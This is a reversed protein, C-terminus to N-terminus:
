KKRPKRTEGPMETDLGEGDFTDLTNGLNWGIKMKSVAQLTEEDIKVKNLHSCGGAAFVVSLALILCVAKKLIKM